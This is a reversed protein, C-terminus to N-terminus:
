DSPIIFERNEGSGVRAMYLKNAGYDALCLDFTAKFDARATTTCIVPVNGFLTDKDTHAHGCLVFKVKGNANSFDYTIDNHTYNTKSNFAVIIKELETSLMTRNDDGNWVMHLMVAVNESTNGKLENCLWIIQESDFPRLNTNADSDIGSDLVYWKTNDGVFSYYTNQKDSFWLAKQASKQIEGSSSQYNTDHNGLAFYHPSLLSDCEGKILGMTYCYDNVDDFHGIWDGSDLVYSAPTSHYIKSITAIYKQANERADLNNNYYHADTMFLFQETKASVNAFLSSYEKSKTKIEEDTLMYMPPSNFTRSELNEISIINRNAQRYGYLEIWYGAVSGYWNKVLIISNDVFTIDTMLLKNQEIDYILYKTPPVQLSIVGDEYTAGDISSVIDDASVVNSFSPNRYIISNSDIKINVYGGDVDINIDGNNSIYLFGKLENGIAKNLSEAKTYAKLKFSVNTGNFWCRIKKINFPAVFECKANQNVNSSINSENVGDSVNLTCTYKSTNTFRCELGSPINVSYSYNGATEITDSVTIDVGNNSNKITEGINTIDEKLSGIPRLIDNEFDITKQAM